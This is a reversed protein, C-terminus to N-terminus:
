EPPVQHHHRSSTWLVREVSRMGLLGSGLSRCWPQADSVMPPFFISDSFIIPILGKGPASSHLLFLSGGLTVCIWFLLIARSFGKWNPRRWLSRVERLCLFLPFIGLLNGNSRIGACVALSVGAALLRIVAKGASESGSAEAASPVSSRYLLTLGLLSAFAFPGETYVASLFISAPNWCFALSSYWALKRDRVVAVSLRDM